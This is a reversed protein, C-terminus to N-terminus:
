NGGPLSRSTADSDDDDTYEFSHGINSIWDNFSPSRNVTSDGTYMVTNFVSEPVGYLDQASPANRSGGEIFERYNAPTIQSTAHEYLYRRLYEIARRIAYEGSESRHKDSLVDLAERILDVGTQREYNDLMQRIVLFETNTQEHITQNYEMVESIIPAPHEITLSILDRDDHHRHDKTVRIIPKTYSRRQM